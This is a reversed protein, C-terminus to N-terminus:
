EATYRSDCVAPQAVQRVGVVQRVGLRGFVVLHQLTDHSGTRALLKLEDGNSSWIGRGRSNGTQDCLHGVFAVAGTAGIAPFDLRTFVTGDETGPANDGSLAITRLSVPSTDTARATPALTLADIPVPLSDIANM